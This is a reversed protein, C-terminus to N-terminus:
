VVLESTKFDLHTLLADKLQVQISRMSHISLNFSRQRKQHLTNGDYGLNELFVNRIEDESAFDNSM